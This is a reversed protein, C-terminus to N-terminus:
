WRKRRPAQAHFALAATALLALGDVARRRQAAPLAALVGAVRRADLVSSASLAKAGAATLRLEFQRRDAKAPARLLYGLGALRKLAASLTSNSIGLHRALQGALLPNTEDLHALLSADHTSLHHRSSKARVHDVHCALYIKPFSRQVLQVLQRSM